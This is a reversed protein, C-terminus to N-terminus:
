EWNHEIAEVADLIEKSEPKGKVIILAALPVGTKSKVAIKISSAGTEKLVACGTELSPNQQFEQLLQPVTKPPTKM